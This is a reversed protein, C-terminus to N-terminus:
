LGLPLERCGAVMAERRRVQDDGRKGLAVVGADKVVVTVIVQDGLAGIEAELANPERRGPAQLACIITIQGEM